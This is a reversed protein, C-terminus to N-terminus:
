SNLNNGLWLFLVLLGARARPGSTWTVRKEAHESGLPVDAMSTPRAPVEGRKPLGLEFDGYEASSRAADGAAEGFLSAALKGTADHAMWSLCLFAATLLITEFVWGIHALLGDRAWLGTRLLGTGDGGLWIHHCLLYVELAMRGLPTPLLMHMNRIKSHSNRIVAYAVAAFCSIYPHVRDYSNKDRTGYSVQTKIFFLVAYVSAAAVIAPQVLAMLRTPFIVASITRDVPNSYVSTRNAKLISIRHAIVAAIMGFFSVFKDVGIQKRVDGANFSIRGIVRLITGCFELIGPIHIFLTAAVAAVLIKALLLVPNDNVRAFVKFTLFTVLFWFTIIRPFYYVQWDSKLMLSLLCSLFNLRFLVTAARRFSFDGTKLFYTAHGYSSMFIYCAGFLRAIKYLSLVDSTKQFQMLLMGTQMLGRWEDSQPRSLFGLEERRGRKLGRWSDAAAGASSTPRLTCVSLTFLGAWVAAFVFEDFHREAHVLAQTRDTFYSYLACGVLTMSAALTAQTPLYPSPNRPNRRRAWLLSPIVVAGALLLLTQTESLPSRAVCCTTQRGGFRQGVLGANCRVNLAVDIRREALGETVHMGNQDFANGVNGTMENFVWIIRSGAPGPLQRLYENMEGLRQPTLTARREQSLKNRYPIPVPALLIQSELGSYPRPTLASSDLPIDLYRQVGDISHRFLGMFEDGGHRASFLGPAGLVILAPSDQDFEKLIGVDAQSLERRFSGLLDFLGTSNLWPDWVFEIRVGEAEFSIDRQPNDSVFFDIFEVEAKKHDLRQAAAWFIQRTTSDGVFVLRRDKVCDRIQDRSYEHM